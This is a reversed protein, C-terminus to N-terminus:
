LINIGKFSNFFIFDLHNLVYDHDFM